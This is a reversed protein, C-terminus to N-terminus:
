NKKKTKLNGEAQPGGRGPAGRQRPGGLRDGECGCDTPGPWFIYICKIEALIALLIHKKRKVQQRLVNKSWVKLKTEEM